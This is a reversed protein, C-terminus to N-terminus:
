FCRTKLSSTFHTKTEERYDYPKSTPNQATTQTDKETIM